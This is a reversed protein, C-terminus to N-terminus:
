AIAKLAPNFSSLKSELANTQECLGKLSQIEWSAKLLRYPTSAPGFTRALADFFPRISQDSPWQRLLATLWNFAEGSNISWVEQCIYLHISLPFSQIRACEFARRFANLAQQPQQQFQV